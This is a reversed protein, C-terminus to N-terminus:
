WYITHEKTNVSLYSLYSLYLKDLHTDIATKGRSSDNPDNSGYVTFVFNPCKDLCYYDFYAWGNKYHLHTIIGNCTVTATGGNYSYPIKFKVHILAINENHYNGRMALVSHDVLSGLSHVRYGDYYLSGHWIQANSGVGFGIVAVLILFIKKM